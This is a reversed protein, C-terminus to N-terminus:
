NATDAEPTDEWADAEEAAADEIIEEGENEETPPTTETITLGDWADGTFEVNDIIEQINGYWQNQQNTWALSTIVVWIVSFLLVAIIIVIFIFLTTKRKKM